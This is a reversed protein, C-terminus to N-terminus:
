LFILIIFIFCLIPKTKIIFSTGSVKLDSAGILSKVESIVDEDNYKGHIIACYKKIVNNKTLEVLKCAPEVEDKCDEVSNPESNSKKYKENGCANVVQNIASGILICFFFVFFLVNKM